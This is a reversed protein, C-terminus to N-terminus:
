RKLLGAQRGSIFCQEGTESDIAVPVLSTTTYVMEEERRESRQRLLGLAYREAAKLRTKAPIRVDRLERAHGPAMALVMIGMMAIMLKM